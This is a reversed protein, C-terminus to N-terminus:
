PKEALGCYGHFDKVERENPQRDARRWAMCDSAICFCDPDIAGTVNKNEAIFKTYRNQTGNGDGSVARSFPCFKTRAVSEPHTM